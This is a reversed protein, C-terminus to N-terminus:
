TLSYILVCADEKSFQMYKFNVNKKDYNLKGKLFSSYFARVFTKDSDNM